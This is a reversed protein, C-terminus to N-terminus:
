NALAFTSPKVMPARFPGKTREPIVRKVNGSRQPRLESPYDVISDHSMRQAACRRQIGPVGYKNGQRKPKRFKTAHSLM